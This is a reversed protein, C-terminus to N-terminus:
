PKDNLWWVKNSEVVLIEEFKAGFNETGIHPEVAWLGQLDGAYHENLLQGFLGRSLFAWYSQWGFNIFNLALGEAEIKHLRHGLVSFPYKSHINDYGGDLIMQDVKKWVDGGSNEGDFMKPIATRIQQLFKQAKALEANEGLSSTYGIDSMYGKYIPAVDLIFVDGETIVRSTPLYDLNTKVGAFRTRDGFWVFAKHFFRTAGHDALYTNLLDAAQRETWGEEMLKAVEFAAENALNQSALYGRIDEDTMEIKAVPSLKKLIPLESVRSARSFFKSM